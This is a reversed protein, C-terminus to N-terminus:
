GFIAEMKQPLYLNNKRRRWWQYTYVQRHLKIAEVELNFQEDRFKEGPSYVTGVYRFVDGIKAEDPSEVEHVVVKLANITKRLQSYIINILFM